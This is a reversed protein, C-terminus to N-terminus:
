RVEVMFTVPGDNVLEVQMMAGFVGEKVSIGEKKLERILDKYIKEAQEPAEASDFSPRNGKKLDAALTFQSVVLMEGEMDKISLNMKGAEEEFIRINALRRSIFQIQKESDGKEVGLLVLMGKGILSVEKGSVTVRARSVRQILAKV